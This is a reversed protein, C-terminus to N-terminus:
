TQRDIQKDTQKDTQAMPHLKKLTKKRQGTERPITAKTGLSNKQPARFVFCIHVGMKIKIKKRLFIIQIGLVFFFKDAGLDFSGIKKRKKKEKKVGGGFFIHVGLSFFLYIVYDTYKPLPAIIRM